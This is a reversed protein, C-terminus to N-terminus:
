GNEENEKKFLNGVFFCLLYVVCFSLLLCIPLWVAILVIWWSWTITGVLKLTIFVINLLGLFGIGGSSSNNNSM